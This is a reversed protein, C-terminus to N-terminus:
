NPQFFSKFQALNGLQQGVKVTRQVGLCEPLTYIIIDSQSNNKPAWATQLPKGEVEPVEICENDPITLDDPYQGTKAQNPFAPNGYKYTISGHDAHAPAPLVALLALSGLAAGAARPLRM